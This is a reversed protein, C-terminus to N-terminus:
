ISSEVDGIGQAAIEWNYCSMLDHSCSRIILPYEFTRNSLENSLASLGCGKCRLEKENTMIIDLCQWRKRSIKDSTDQNLVHINRMQM